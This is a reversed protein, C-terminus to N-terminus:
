HSNSEDDNDAQRVGYIGSIMQMAPKRVVEIQHSPWGQAKLQDLSELLAAIPDHKGIANRVCDQVAQNLKDTDM